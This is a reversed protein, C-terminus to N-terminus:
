YTQPENYSNQVFMEVIQYHSAPSLITCFCYYVRSDEKTKNQLDLYIQEEQISKRITANIIPQEDVFFIEGTVPSGM